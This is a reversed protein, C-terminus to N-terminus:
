NFSFHLPIGLCLIHVDKDLCATFFFILGHFSSLPNVTLKRFYPIVSSIYPSCRSFTLSWLKPNNSQWEMPMCSICSNNHLIVIKYLSNKDVPRPNEATTAGGVGGKPLGFSLTSWKLKGATKSHFGLIVCGVKTWCTNLLHWDQPEVICSPYQFSPDDYLVWGLLRCSTPLTTRKTLATYIQSFWWLVRACSSLTSCHKGDCVSIGNTRRCRLPNVLSSTSM